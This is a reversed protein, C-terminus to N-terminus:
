PSCASGFQELLWRKFAEVDGKGEHGGIHLEEPFASAWFEAPTPVGPDDGPEVIDEFLSTCKWDYVTFVNGAEDMFSYTGSVKYDDGESPPGFRDVLRKPPLEVETLFCTGNADADPTLQFTSM